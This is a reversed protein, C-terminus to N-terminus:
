IGGVSSNVLQLAAAASPMAYRETALDLNFTEIKPRFGEHRSRNAQEGSRNHRDSELM